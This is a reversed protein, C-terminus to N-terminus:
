QENFKKISYNKFVHYDVQSLNQLAIGIRLFEIFCDALNTNNKEISLIANKIPM